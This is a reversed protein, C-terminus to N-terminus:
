SLFNEINFPVKISTKTKVEDEADDGPERVLDELINSKKRRIVAQRAYINFNQDINSSNERTNCQYSDNVLEHSDSRLCFTVCKRRMTRCCACFGVIFNMGSM